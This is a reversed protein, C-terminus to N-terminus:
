GQNFMGIAHEIDINDFADLKEGVTVDYIKRFDCDYNNRIMCGCVLLVM